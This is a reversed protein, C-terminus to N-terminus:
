DEMIKKIYNFLKLNVQKLQEPNLFYTELGETFFEKANYVNVKNNPLFARKGNVIPYLVSQYENIFGRVSKNLHFLKAKNGHKILHYDDYSLDKFQESIINVFDKDNFLNVKKEYAHGLEHVVEYKNAGKRLYVIDEVEDYKSVSEDSVKFSTGRITNKFQGSLMAIAEQTESKLHEKNFDPIEIDDYDLNFYTTNNAKSVINERAYDRKLNNDKIFKNFEKNIDKQKNNWKIFGENDGMQKAIDKKTKTKRLKREYARQKNQLEVIKKNEAYDFKEQSPKDISPFFAWFKHRCNVGSLGLIDGYGTKEYFNPYKSTSGHIKYIKGQWGFHNSIPHVGDGLRAGLHSSVEYYEAELEKAIEESGRNFSQYIATTVDRRVAGELSISYITGNKRQYSAGKIGNDVMKEIARKIATNYDYLGTSTELYAQNLADMYAKQTSELAKTNIMRLTNNLETFSKNIADMITRSKKLDDWSVKTYGQTTLQEIRAESISGYGADTLAQLIAKESVGSYQSIIKISESNLAGMDQLKKFYWDLSNEITVNEDLEFFSAIKMLLDHEINNYIDVIPEALAKLEEDTKM